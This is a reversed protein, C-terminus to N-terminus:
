VIDNNVSYNCMDADSKWFTIGNDYIAKIKQIDIQPINGNLECGATKTYWYYKRHNKRPLGVRNVQYGFMNFFMDIIKAYEKKVSMQYATFKINGTTYLVDGCNTSGNVTPSQFAHIEKQATIGKLQNLYNKANFYSGSLSGIVGGVDGKIGASVGSSIDNVLQQQSALQISETQVEINLSNQTLWNTYYDSQWGCIPFKGCTLGFHNNVGQVGNYNMPMLRISGGQTIVGNIQFACENKNLTSNFLEYNYKATAGSNNDILLYSFPSTLLKNNKPTYGNVTTPKRIAEQSDTESEIDWFTYKPIDWSELVRNSNKDLNIYERPMIFISIIADNTRLESINSLADQMEDPTSFYYYYWGNVVGGYVTLGSDNGSSIDVASAVIFVTNETSRNHIVKNCIYEGTELQEPLTHLGVTDDNVHEREIFCNKFQCDFMYTQIVDTEIYIDTREDNVYKIDTIFAYFWKNSYASNQYMVYNYKIIEDFHAPIRIFGDKRQYSFDDNRYKVTARENFYNYQKTKDAFYLTHKYDNELPANLLYVKTVNSM